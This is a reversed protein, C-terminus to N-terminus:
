RNAAKQGGEDTKQTADEDKWRHGSVEAGADPPLWIAFLVAAASILGVGLFAPWFDGPMAVSHGHWNLTFQLLTGGAAVGLSLALQQSVSSLTTAYSMDKSSVDAYGIAFLGAFQISRLVGGALLTLSIFWHPTGPTFFGTVAIFAAGGIGSLILVTKFGYHRFIRSTFARSAIAGIAGAFTIVGSEFASLNFGIQLMLPLLFPTAGVGVRFLFGGLVSARFTQIRLLSLKMVPTSTRRSHWVYAAIALCGAVICGFSGEPTLLFRGGTALGLMLLALGAGVLLFGVVDLPPVEEDRTNDIFMSALVIGLATFPVNVFFIWRWDVYTTLFGGILPGVMPGMMGPITLFTLARVLESKPVSRLVILRGVPVMMAGGIGQLFRAGVFGLLSNSAACLLSGGIFVLMSLRFVTRAGIRDAMWGSVPIFIAVSVLYSTLALKLAVPNEGISQAIAPLAVAVLASDANEMFFASAVILPVLVSRQV